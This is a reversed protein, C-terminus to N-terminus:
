QPNLLWLYGAYILLMLWAVGAPIVQGRYRRIFTMLILASIVLLVLVYLNIPAPSAFSLVLGGILSLNYINSGLINGLALKDQHQEESIVTILLEPLSTAVATLVLGLVTLSYGTIVALNEVAIVTLLGGAIIGGLSFLLMLLHFGSFHPHKHSLRARDEHKRGFVGWFLELSSFVLAFVLLLWGLSRSWPVFYALLFLCTVLGLAWSNRQTKTTGVRIKGVLIGAPLILLINAINSGIINALALDTEGRTVALLSVALEPLSTGVAVITTGIILPSLRLSYSAITALRVFSQSSVLLLGIGILFLTLPLLAM